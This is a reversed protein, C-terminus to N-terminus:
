ESAGIFMLETEHFLRAKTAELQRQIDKADSRDEWGRCVLVFINTRGAIIDTSTIAKWEGRSMGMERAYARAVDLNKTLLYIM